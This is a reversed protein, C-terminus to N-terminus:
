REFDAASAVSLGFNASCVGERAVDLENVFALEVGVLLLLEFEFM